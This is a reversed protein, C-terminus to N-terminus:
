DAIAPPFCYECDKDTKRRAVHWRQHNGRKGRDARSEQYAAIEEASRQHDLYNHMLYGDPLQIVLPNMGNTSALLERAVRPRVRKKWAAETVFGDTMNRSCYCWLTILARFAADSLVEIKPHEPMGHDLRIFLRWDFSAPSDASM